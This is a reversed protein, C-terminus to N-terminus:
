EWEHLFGHFPLGYRKEFFDIFEKPSDFGEQRWLYGADPHKCSVLRHENISFDYIASCPVEKILRCDKTRQGVYLQMMRGIAGRKTKRITSKKIKAEIKPVFCEQFNFATM